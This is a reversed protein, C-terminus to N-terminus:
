RSRALRSGDTLPLNLRGVLYAFRPNSRISDFSPEINLYILAADKNMYAKELWNFFEDKNGMGLYVLAMDMNPIQDQKQMEKVEELIQQAEVYRGAQGLAYGLTPLKWAKNTDRLTQLTKVAEDLKGQRILVYGLTHRATFSDHEEQLLDNLCSAAREYDRVYYFQRCFASRNLSSTPDFKKALTIEKMAESFRGTITLLEAYWYHATAHDSKAHIAHKFQEEAKNWDRDYKLYITGLSTLAEPMEEDIQLAKQAEGKALQMAEDTQMHGYAPSNKIVYCDALGAHPEAYAPDLAISQKFSEIAKDINPIKDDSQRDRNSLYYKGRLFAFYAERNKTEPSSALVRRQSTLKAAVQECIDEKLDFPQIANLDYTESWIEHGDVSSKLQAILERVDGQKVITGTLVVDVGLESGIQQPVVAAASKKYRSVMTLSNVRLRPLKSLRSILTGTFSEEMYDLSSDGSHNTFPIVALSYSRTWSKYIFASAAVLILLIVMAAFKLYSPSAYRKLSYRSQSSLKELDFKLERASPYRDEQNKQTCCIVIRSLERPIRRLDRNLQAPQLTLIASITEATTGRVYPNSGTLLEFLVTGLSFVDSRFDLTEGRLQEPSMYAVTGKLVGAQSLQSISEAATKPEPQAVTKALGFDLVKVQRNPTVMMNKPKLDRHIVGRAHAEAVAGVIQRAIDVMEDPQLCGKRILDALTEGEVYQMVIFAHDGAEEFDYVTCINPHDLMAAAQAEKGLQRKAWGDGTFTESLFKLAVKRELRTDEALYVEGMGGRGLLSLVRYFGITKGTLSHETSQSLVSMGLSIVPDDLFNKSSELASILSSVEVYLQKDGKCAGELYAGREQVPLTLAAHFINEM